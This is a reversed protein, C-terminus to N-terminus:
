KRSPCMPRLPKGSLLPLRSWQISSVSFAAVRNVTPSLIEPSSVTAAFFRRVAIRLRLIAIVFDATRSHFPSRTFSFSGGDCYFLWNRGRRKVTIELKGNDVLVLRVSEHKSTASSKDPPDVGLGFPWNFVEYSAHARTFSGRKPFTVDPDLLFLESLNTTLILLGQPSSQLCRIDRSEQINEDFQNETLVTSFQLNGLGLVTCM